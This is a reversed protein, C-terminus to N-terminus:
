LHVQSQESLSPGHVSLLCGFRLDEKDGVVLNIANSICRISIHKPHLSECGQIKWTEARFPVVCFESTARGVRGLVRRIGQRPYLSSESNGRLMKRSSIYLHIYLPNM